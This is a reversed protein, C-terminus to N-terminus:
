KFETEKLRRCLHLFYHLCITTTQLKNNKIIVILIKIIIIGYNKSCVRLQQHLIVRMVVGSFASLLIISDNAFKKELCSLITLYRTNVNFRKSLLVSYMYNSCFDTQCPSECNSEHIMYIYRTNIM